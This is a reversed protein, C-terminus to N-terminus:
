CAAAFEQREVTTVPALFMLSAKLEIGQRGVTGIGFGLAAAARETYIRPCHSYLAARKRVARLLNHFIRHSNQYRQQFKVM